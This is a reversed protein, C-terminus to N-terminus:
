LSQGGRVSLVVVQATVYVVLTEVGFGEQIETGYWGLAEWYDEEQYSLHM